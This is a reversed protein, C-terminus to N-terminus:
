PKVRTLEELVNRISKLQSDAPQLLGLMAWLWIGDLAAIVTLACGPPLGDDFISENWSAYM